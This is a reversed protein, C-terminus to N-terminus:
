CGLLRRWAARPWRGDRDGATMARTVAILKAVPRTIRRAAVLGGPADARATARVILGTIAIDM